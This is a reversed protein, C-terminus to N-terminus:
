EGGCPALALPLALLVAGADRESSDDWVACMGEGPRGGIGGARLEEASRGERPANRMGDHLTLVFGIYWRTAVRRACAAMDLPSPRTRLAALTSSRTFSSTDPLPPPPLPLPLPLTVGASLLRTRGSSSGYRTPSTAAALALRSLSALSFM